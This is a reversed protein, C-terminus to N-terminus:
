GAVFFTALHIQTNCFPYSPIAEAPKMAIPRIQPASYKLELIGPNVDYNYKSRGTDSVPIEPTVKIKEAEDLRADFDKVVQIIDVPLNQAILNEVLTFLLFALGFGISHRYIKIHM